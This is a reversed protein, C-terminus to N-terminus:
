YYIWIDARESFPATFVKFNGIQSTLLNLAKIDPYSLLTCISVVKVNGVFWNCFEINSQIENMFIIFTFCLNLFTSIVLILISPIFLEPV